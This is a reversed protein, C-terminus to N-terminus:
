VPMVGQAPLVGAIIKAAAIQASPDDEHAILQASTTFLARSYPIGFIVLLLNKQQAILDNVLKQTEHTLGYNVEEAASLDHLSIVQQKFKNMGHLSVVVADYQKAKALISNTENKAMAPSVNLIDVKSGYQQLTTALPEQQKDTMQILLFKKNNFPVLKQVDDVVIMAQEFIKDKLAQSAPTFFKSMEFTTASRKKDAQAFEKAKLIRLVHEDLQVQSIIGNLVAEKILNFARPVFETYLRWDDKNNSKLIKEDSMLLIDTGALLAELAAESQHFNKTIGGMDLSDAIILGNFGFENRLMDTLVKKSLSTPRGPRDDLAPIHIHASMIAKVGGNILKKFPFLEVANLRQIDHNVVPLGVHSDVVTDGHGPFHKACAIISQEQIGRMYALGKNAVKVPDAGFSRNNIIPNKPNVNVDVVPAPIFNVGIYAAQRAFEKGVEYALKDDSCSGIAMNTMFFPNDTLRRLGPEFDQAIFLPIAAQQQYYKIAEVEPQVNGNGLLVIGGIHYTKITKIVEQQMDTSPNCHSAVMFLQGVKQDLTMSQLTQQAWNAHLYAFSSIFVFGLIIKNKIM